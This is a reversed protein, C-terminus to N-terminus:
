KLEVSTQCIRNRNSFTEFLFIFFIVFNDLEELVNKMGINAGLLDIATSRRASSVSFRDYLINNVNLFAKSSKKDTTLIFGEPYRLLEESNQQLNGYETFEVIYNQQPLVARVIADYWLGDESYVAEVCDHVRYLANEVPDLMRLDEAGVECRGEYDLWEIVYFGQPSSEILRARYWQGDDNYIAEIIDGPEASFPVIRKMNQPYTEQRTGDLSFSIIYSGYPTCDQVYGDHWMGDDERIAEVFDGISFISSSPQSDQQEDSSSTTLINNSFRAMNRISNIILHNQPDNQPYPEPLLDIQNPHLNKLYGPLNLKKTSINKGQNNINELRENFDVENSELQLTGHTFGIVEIDEDEEQFNSPTDFVNSLSQARLFELDSLDGTAMEIKKMKEEQLKQEKQNKEEEEKQQKLIEKQKEEEEKQLKLKEKEIERKKKEEEMRKSEEEEQQKRNLEDQEKSQKDRESRERQVREQEEQAKRLREEREKEEQQRREEEEKERQEREEKELKSFEELRRLREEEEIRRKEEEEKRIREEEEKKQQEWLENFSKKALFTRCVSQLARCGKKIKIFKLSEKRMRLASQIKIVKSRISLYHKKGLFGKVNSQIKILAKRQIEYQKRAKWTRIFTQFTTAANHLATYRKFQRWGRVHAQFSIAAKRLKLYKKKQKYMRFNNQLILAFKELAKMRLNGLDFYVQDRFFVKTKGVMWGTKPIGELSEMLSKSNEKLDSSVSAASPNCVRYRDLFDSFERRVPYGAKRIRITELM